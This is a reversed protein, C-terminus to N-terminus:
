GLEDREHLHSPAIVRVREATMVDCHQHFCQRDHHWAAVRRLRHHIDRDVLAVVEVQLKLAALRPLSGQLLRPQTQLAGEVEVVQMVDCLRLKMGLAEVVKQHAPLWPRSVASAGNTRKLKSRATAATTLWVLFRQGFRAATVDMVRWGCCSAWGAECLVWSV